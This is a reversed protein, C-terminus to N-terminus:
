KLGGDKLLKRIAEDDTKPSAFWGFHRMDEDLFLIFKKGFPASWREEIVKEGGGRSNEKRAFILDSGERRVEEEFVICTNSKTAITLESGIKVKESAGRFIENICYRIKIFFRDGTIKTEGTKLDDFQFGIVEAACVIPAEAVATEVTTSMVPKAALFVADCPVFILASLFSFIFLSFISRNM